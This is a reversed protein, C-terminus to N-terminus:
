DQMWSSSRRSACPTASTTSNSFELRVGNKERIGGSGRKWGAADLVANAKAPTTPM